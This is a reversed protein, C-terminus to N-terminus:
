KFTSRREQKESYWYSKFFRTDIHVFTDYLGIGKIGIKEAYAAVERPAIGKVVIDAAEGEMHKSTIAGGVAKNHKYCRYGSNIIVPKNFHNRIEQLYDVLKDDIHTRSCEGCKCDFETSKFNKAIVKVKGKEFTKIM